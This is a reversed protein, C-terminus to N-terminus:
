CCLQYHLHRPYANEWYLCYVSWTLCFIISIIFYHSYSDLGWLCALFRALLRYCNLHIKSKPYHVLSCNCRLWSGLCVMRHFRCFSMEQFFHLFWLSNVSDEILAICGLQCCLMWLVLLTSSHKGFYGIVFVTVLESFAWCSLRQLSIAHHEWYCDTCSYSISWLVCISIWNVLILHKEM